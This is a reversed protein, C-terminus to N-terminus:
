TFHLVVRVELPRGCVEDLREAALMQAFDVEVQFHQVRYFHKARAGQFGLGSIM